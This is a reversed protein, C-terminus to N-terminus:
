DVQPPRRPRVGNHIRRSEGARRVPERRKRSRPIVRNKVALAEMVNGATATARGGFLGAARAPESRREVPHAVVQRSKQREKDGTLQWRPKWVESASEATATEGALRLPRRSRRQRALLMDRRAPKPRTTGNSWFAKSQTSGRVIARSVCRVCLPRSCTRCQLTSESAAAARRDRHPSGCRALREAASAM